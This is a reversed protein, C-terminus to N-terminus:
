LQVKSFHHILISDNIFPFLLLALANNDIGDLTETKIREQLKHVQATCICTRFELEEIAIPYFLKILSKEEHDKFQMVM